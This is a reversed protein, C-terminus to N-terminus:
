LANVNWYDIRSEWVTNKAGPTLKRSSVAHINESKRRRNGSRSPNRTTRSITSNRLLIAGPAYRNTVAYAPSDVVKLLYRMRTTKINISAAPKVAFGAIAPRLGPSSSEAFAFFFAAFSSFLFLVSFGAEDM